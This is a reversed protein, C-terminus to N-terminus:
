QQPQTSEQTPSNVHVFPADVSVPIDGSKTVHVFPANVKVNSQGNNVDVNVFPAKVKVNPNGSADKLDVHVMDKVYSKVDGIIKGLGSQPAAQQVGPQQNPIQGNQSQISQQQQAPIPQGGAQPVQNFQQQYPQSGPQTSYPQSAPTAQGNAAQSGQSYAPSSSLCAMVVVIALLSYRSSKSM